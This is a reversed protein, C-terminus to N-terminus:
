RRQEAVFAQVAELEAPLVTYREERELLGAMHAPLPVGEFGAQLVADAFKAPHATALTIMPTSADTRVREAARYGTATHPDLLEKTRGHADRIVELITDDDVSHSVFKERLRALPAEALVAPEQQFRELLDRVADGDRDYAEFLLREFNSSVVIDMSPALTAKLAQKSFDNDALTRHLIDNANTAVVFQKVPLGMRYAVYGAFVNGFNASPVCFSVERHPAGLAVASAVYYVVQAMIRAWNISNVAVLRTGNLFTQDAFSAKVMAQADDFDGEIAINFVNDALVSTMQRRQVESVRNHPHLIFIDLNDCHRCGEIAASGTDGSTAGMIVAREGRKALFHDLIRGLLQLAVDKFALTPGHFLELLFHNSALQNLPVVAEHSFTAYADKVLQRFTDDDIEGGVFPKMVRFAIEAYSLGAMAELDETSLTPITEPVYLGGDSAMGTLVVDEFSLAPSRGRTSIYRM